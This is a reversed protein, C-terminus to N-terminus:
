LIIWDKGFSLGSEDNVIECPIDIGLADCCDELENLHCFYVSGEHIVYLDSPIGYGSGSPRVRVIADSLPAKLLVCDWTGIKGADGDAGNGRALIEFKDQQNKLVQITGDGRRTYGGESSLMMYLNQPDREKNIRPRGSKTRGVTFEPNMGNKIVTDATCTMAMFKRGRGVEGMGIQYITGFDMTREEPTLDRNAYLM